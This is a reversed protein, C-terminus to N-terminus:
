IQLEGTIYSNVSFAFDFSINQYICSFILLHCYHNTFQITHINHPPPPYLFIFYAMKYTQWLLYCYELKYLSYAIM